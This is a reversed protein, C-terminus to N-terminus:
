QPREPLAAELEAVRARLAANEAELEAIYDHLAKGAAQYAADAEPNQGTSTHASIFASTDFAKMLRRGHESIKPESM